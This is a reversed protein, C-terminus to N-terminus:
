GFAKAVLRQLVEQFAMALAMTEDDVYTISATLTKGGDPTSFMLAAYSAIGGNHTIVTGGDTEQVFVGLGYGMNPIPTPYPAVMEALLPAPLFGDGLVGTIFRQLDKTTSIMDGGTSIRSPNMRSVDAIHVQGDEEYRYYAHAHEGPIEPDTEPVVTGTLGLPDLVLRRMEEAFPRGSASEAVLRALVYNTNSYSWATGPEFNLPKALAFEVLEEPLFTKFRDEVWTKGQWTIGPVLEGDEFDGTYNYVGSTHQLLMRVTIRPDLAFRPLHDAAKDDLALRGEAVLRLVLAATFTKTNSGIRFAGETSPKGPRGIERSGAAGTWEGHEDTIRLQVGTFGADVIGDIIQQFEARDASSTQTATTNENM